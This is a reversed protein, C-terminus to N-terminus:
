IKRARSKEDRSANARPSMARFEVSDGSSPCILPYPPNYGMPDAGLAASPRLGGSGLPANRARTFCRRGHREAVLGGLEVVEIRLCVQMIDEGADCIM